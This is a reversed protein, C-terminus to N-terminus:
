CEASLLKDCVVSREVCFLPHAPGELGNINMLHFLTLSVKKLDGKTLQGSKRSQSCAWSYKQCLGEAGDPAKIHMRQPLFAQSTASAPQGGLHIFLVSAGFVAASFNRIYNKARDFKPMLM